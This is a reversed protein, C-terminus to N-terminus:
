KSKHAARRSSWRTACVCVYVCVGARRDAVNTRRVEEKVGLREVETVFTMGLYAEDIDNELIRVLVVDVCVCVCVCM